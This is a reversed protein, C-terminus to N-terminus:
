CNATSARCHCTLRVVAHAFGREPMRHRQVRSGGFSFGVERARLYCGLLWHLFKSCVSNMLRRPILTSSCATRAAPSPCLVSSRRRSACSASRSWARVESGCSAGDPAWKRDRSLGSARRCFPRFAGVSLRGHPWLDPRSRARPSEAIDTRSTHRRPRAEGKPRM